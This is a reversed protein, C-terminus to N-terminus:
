LEVVIPANLGGSERQLIAANVYTTGDMKVRGYSAHVHGFVVLRPRVERIRDRLGPDGICEGRENRDLVGYPPSHVVLIDTGAPIDEWREKLCEMETQSRLQSPSWPTGYVYLGQVMAGEDCLYVANSLLRALVSASRRDWASLEHNGAIVVKEAFPLSGLWSNFSALEQGAGDETVDGAHILM